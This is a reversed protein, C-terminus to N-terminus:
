SWNDTDVSGPVCWEVAPGDRLHAGARAVLGVVERLTQAREHLSLGETVLKYKVLDAM